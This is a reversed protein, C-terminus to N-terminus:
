RFKARHRTYLLDLSRVEREVDDEVLHRGQRQDRVGLTLEEELFLIKEGAGADNRLREAAREDEPFQGVSLEGVDPIALGRRGAFGGRARRGRAVPTSSCEISPSPRSAAEWTIEGCQPAM